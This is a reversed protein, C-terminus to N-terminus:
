ELLDLLENVLADQPTNENKITCLIEYIDKKAPEYAYKGAMAISFYLCEYFDCADDTHRAWNILQQYANIDGEWIIHYRWDDPTNPVATNPKQIIPGQPPTYHMFAQFWRQRNPTDVDKKFLDLYQEVLQRAAITDHYGAIYLDVLYLYSFQEGNDVGKKTITRQMSLSLSDMENIREHFLKPICRGAYFYPMTGYEKWESLNQEIYLLYYLTLPCDCKGTLVDYADADFHQLLRHKSENISIDPLIYTTTSVNTGVQAYTAISYCIYIFFLFNKNVHHLINKM